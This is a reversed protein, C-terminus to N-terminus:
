CDIALRHVVSVLGNPNRHVRIYQTFTQGTCDYYTPRYPIGFANYAEERLEEITMEPEDEFFGYEFWGDCENSRSVHHWDDSLSKMVMPEGKIRFMKKLLRKEKKSLMVKEEQPITYKTFKNNVIYYNYCWEVLNDFTKLVM